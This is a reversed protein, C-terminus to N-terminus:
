HGALGGEESGTECVEKREDKGRRLKMQGDNQKHADVIREM